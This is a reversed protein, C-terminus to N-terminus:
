PARAAVARLAVREVREPAAVLVLREVCPAAAIAALTWALLPRGGIEAMLKDTGAMRRSSGAAVVVVDARPGGIREEAM